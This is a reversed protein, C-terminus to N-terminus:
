ATKRNHMEFGPALMLKSLELLYQMKFPRVELPTIKNEGPVELNFPGNYGIDQLAQLISPWDITGRMPTLHQDSKTDNDDIHLAVLRKGLARLSRAQDIGTINAHGTDWCVGFHDSKVQDLLWVLDGVTSGFRPSKLSLNEVAVGVGVEEATKIYGRFVEVNRRLTWEMEETDTGYTDPFGPHLVVWRVGLAAGRRLSRNAWAVNEDGDPKCHNFLRGHMQVIEVGAREAAQRISALRHGEDEKGELYGAEHNCSFEVQRFGAAGILRIAEEPEYERLFGTWICPTIM